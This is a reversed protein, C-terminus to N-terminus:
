YSKWEKRGEERGGERGGEGGRGEMDSVWAYPITQVTPTVMEASANTPAKPITASSIRM